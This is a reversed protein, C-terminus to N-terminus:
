CRLRTEHKYKRMMGEGELLRDCDAGKGSLSLSLLGASFALVLEVSKSLTLM